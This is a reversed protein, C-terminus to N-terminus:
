AGDSSVIAASSALEELLTLAGEGNMAFPDLVPKESFRLINSLNVRNLNVSSIQWSSFHRETIESYDLLTIDCHRLDRVINSYLRNVAECGGEFM